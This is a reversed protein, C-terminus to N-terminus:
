LAINLVYGRNHRCFFAQTSGFTFTSVTCCFFLIIFPTIYVFARWPTYSFLQLAPLIQLPLLITVFCTGIIVKIRWAYRKSVFFIGIGITALIVPLYGLFEFWQDVTPAPLAYTSLSGGGTIASKSYIKLLSQLFGFLWWNSFLLSITLLSGGIFVGIYILNRKKWHRGVFFTFIGIFMMPWLLYSVFHYGIASVCVFFATLLSAYKHTRASDELLLLVVPIFLIIISEPFTSSLRASFLPVILSLFASIMAAAESKLIRRVVVFISLSIFASIVPGFWRLITLLSINSLFHIQTVLIPFVLPAGNPTVPVEFPVNTTTQGTAVIYKAMMGPYYTDGDPLFPMDHYYGSKLFISLFFIILLCGGAVVQRYHAQGLNDSIWKKM